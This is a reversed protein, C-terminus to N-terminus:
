CSTQYAYELKNDKNLKSTVRYIFSSIPVVILQDVLKYIKTGIKKLAKFIKNM